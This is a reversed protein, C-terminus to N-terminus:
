AKSTEDFPYSKCFGKMPCLLCYPDRATCITAGFDM